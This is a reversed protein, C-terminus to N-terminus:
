GLDDEKEQRKLIKIEGYLRNQMIVIYRTKVMELIALFACVVELLNEPKQILQEFTFEKREELFENILSVKENVSVEEYLNFVKEPSLNSMIGSFTKLLDWVEVKEWLNDEEEAFPLVPGKKKRGMFWTERDNKEAMLATLKKFKQYEILKAVLERRPDELEEDLDLEIPLLMKSKIYILTSALHYFDTLDELSIRTAYDIFSLYQETIEAIPIDYINVDNKKILFLLLDLPGEFQDLKFQHPEIVSTTDQDM